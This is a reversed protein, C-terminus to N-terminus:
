LMPTKLRTPMLTVLNLSVVKIRAARGINRPALPTSAGQLLKFTKVRHSLGRQTSIRFLQARTSAQSTSTLTTFAKSRTAMKSFM